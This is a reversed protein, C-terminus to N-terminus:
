REDRLMQRELGILFDSLRRQDQPSISSFRGGIVSHKAWPLTEVFCVTLNFRVTEGQPLTLTCNILDEDAHLPSSLKAFVAMGERSLNAVTGNVKRDDIFQDGHFTVPQSQAIPIRHHRRRQLHAIEAPPKARYTVAGANDDITFETVNFSIGIGRLVAEVKFRGQEAVLRQGSEPKFEDFILAGDEIRLLSSVFPYNSGPVVVSLLLHHRCLDDLTAAIRAPNTIRNPGADELFQVGRDTEGLSRRLLRRLRDFM